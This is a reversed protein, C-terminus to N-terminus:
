LLIFHPVKSFSLLHILVEYVKSFPRTYRYHGQLAEGNYVHHKSMVTWEMTYTNTHSTKQKENM